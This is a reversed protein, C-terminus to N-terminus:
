RIFLVYFLRLFVSFDEFYVSNFHTRSATYFDSGHTLLVRASFSLTSSNHVTVYMSIINISKMYRIFKRNM